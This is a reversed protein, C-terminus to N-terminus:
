SSSSQSLPPADPEFRRYMMSLHAIPGLLSLGCKGPVGGEIPSSHPTTPRPGGGQALERQGRGQGRKPSPCLGRAPAPRSFPPRPARELVSCPCNVSRSTM